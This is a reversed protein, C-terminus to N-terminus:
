CAKAREDQTGTIMGDPNPKPAGAEAASVAHGADRLARTLFEVRRKTAEARSM